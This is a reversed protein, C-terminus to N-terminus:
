RLFKERIAGNIESHINQAGIRIGSGELVKSIDKLFIFPPCIGSIIENKNQLSKRLSKAFEVGEALTLNMKWNGVIFPKEGM